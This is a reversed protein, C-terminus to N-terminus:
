WPCETLTTDECDVQANDDECDDSSGPGGANTDGSTPGGYVLDTDGDGGDMDDTGIGGCIKDTDTGGSVTDDGPGGKIRDEDGGGDLVDDGENGYIRDDGAQGDITDAGEHGNIVDAGNGGDIVDGYTTSASGQILDDGGDGYVYIDACDLHKGSTTGVLKITDANDTGLIDVDLGTADDCHNTLEDFICCFDENDGERGYAMFADNGPSVFFADASYWELTAGLDCDIDDSGTLVCVDAGSGGTCSATAYIGPCTLAHSTVPWIALTAVILLALIVPNLKKM